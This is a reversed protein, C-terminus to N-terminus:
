IDEVVNAPPPPVQTHEVDDPMHRSIWTLLIRVYAIAAWYKRRSAALEEELANVKSEVDKLRAQLPELLSVTQTRIIAEWRASLAADEATEQQAVGMRKDHRVKLLAAIGGGGLVLTMLAIAPTLWPAPDPAGGDAALALVLTVM